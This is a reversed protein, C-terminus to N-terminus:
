GRGDAVAGLHGRMVAVFQPEAGELSHNGQIAVARGRPMAAALRKEHFGGRRVSLDPVYQDNASWVVLADVAICGLLDRLEENSYRASFLDDVGGRAHLALYRAATMTVGEVPFPMVPGDTFVNHPAANAGAAAATIVADDGTRLLLERAVALKADIGPDEAEISEVDSVPAQLVVSFRPAGGRESGASSSGQAADGDGGEIEDSLAEYGLWDPRRRALAVIDQCGTSHGVIVVHAIVGGPHAALVAEICQAIEEADIAISSRGFGDNSSTLLPHVV